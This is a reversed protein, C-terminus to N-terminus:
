IAIWIEKILCVINIIFICIAIGTFLLEKKSVDETGQFILNVITEISQKM